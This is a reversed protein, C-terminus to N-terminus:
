KGEQRLIHYITDRIYGGASEPAVKGPLALAHIVQLGLQQAAQRDVGGPLSALDLILCHPPVQALLPATLIPAPITNVILSCGGLATDLRDLPLAFHGAADAWTLQTCSRAAVSVRAGLAGFRQATLTGVRGYGLVLMELNHVTVPLQEMALQVAGEATAIANAVTLEERRFYDQLPLHRQAFLALTATDIRGGCLLSNPSLADLIPALPHMRDSMPAFLVGPSSCLPMPFVVCTARDIGELTTRTSHEMAYTCVSHGDRELLRALHMQRLDGGLVWFSKQRNM